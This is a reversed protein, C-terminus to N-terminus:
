SIKGALIKQLELSFNLAEQAIRKEIENNPNVETVVASEDYNPKDTRGLLYDASVNYADALKIILNSKPIQPDNPREYFSYAQTTMGLKEAVDKQKLGKLQRFRKLADSITM